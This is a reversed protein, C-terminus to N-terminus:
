RRCPNPEQQGAREGCWAGARAASERWNGQFQLANYGNIFFQVTGSRATPTGVPVVTYGGNLVTMPGNFQVTGTISGGAQPGQALEYTGSVNPMTLTLTMTFPTGDLSTRWVGAFSCNPPFNQDPKAGCWQGRGTPGQVGQREGNITNGDGDIKLNLVGSGNGTWTGTFEDNTVDGDLRGTSANDLTDTFTGTVHNGDHKLEMAGFNLNWVGDFREMPDERLVLFLIVGIVVLLLVGAGIAIPIWPIPKPPPPPAPVKIIVSPGTERSEDPNASNVMDLHFMYNGPAVGVPVKVQVLYQETGAIAFDREASGALTLWAMVAPDETVLLARGRLLQDSTNTVTFAAEAQRKDDLDLTNKPTTITFLGPM